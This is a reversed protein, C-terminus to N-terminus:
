AAEVGDVHFRDHPFAAHGETEMPIEGHLMVCGGSLREDKPPSFPNWPGQLYSAIPAREKLAPAETM